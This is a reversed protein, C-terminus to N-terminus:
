DVREFEVPRREREDLMRNLLADWSEGKRGIGRLRDRTGKQIPITTLDGM